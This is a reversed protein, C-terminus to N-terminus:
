NLSVIPPFDARNSEDDLQFVHEPELLDKLRHRGLDRLVCRPPPEEAVLQATVGSLLVQGGHGAALLRGCRNLARGFYHGSRLGAEGTHIAMRVKLAIGKPWRAEGLGRQMELACAAADRGLRFVALISD